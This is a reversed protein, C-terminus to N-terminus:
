ILRLEEIYYFMKRDARLKQVKTLFIKEADKGEEEEEGEKWYFLIFFFTKIKENPHADFSVIDQGM